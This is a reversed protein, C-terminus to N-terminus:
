LLEFPFVVVSRIFLFANERTVDAPTRHRGGKVPLRGRFPLLYRLVDFFQKRGVFVFRRACRRGVRVKGRRHHDGGDPLGHLAKSDSRFLTTYPFLTSRPPRRSM